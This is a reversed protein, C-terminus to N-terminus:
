QYRKTVKQEEAPKKAIRTFASKKNNKDEAPM